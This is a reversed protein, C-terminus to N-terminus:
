PNNPQLYNPTLGLPTTFGHLADNERKSEDYTDGCGGQGAHMAYRMGQRYGVDGGDLAAYSM